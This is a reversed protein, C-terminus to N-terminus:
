KTLFIWSSSVLAVLAFGARFPASNALRGSCRLFSRFRVIGFPRRTSRWHAFFSLWRFRRRCGSWILVSSGDLFSTLNKGTSFRSEAQLNLFESAVAFILKPKQARWRMLRFCHLRSCCIAPSIFAFWTLSNGIWIFLSGPFITSSARVLLNGKTQNERIADSSHNWHFRTASVFCGRFSQREIFSPSIKNVPKILM